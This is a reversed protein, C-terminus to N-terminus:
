RAKCAPTGSKIQYYRVEVPGEWFQDQQFSKKDVLKWCDPIEFAAREPTNYADTSFIWVGKIDLDLLGIPTILDADSVEQGARLSTRDIRDVLLRPPWDKRAYYDVGFFSHRELAVAADGETRHDLAYQVAGRMGENSQWGIDSWNDYYLCFSVVIVWEALLYHSFIWKSRFLAFSFASIWMLHVFTFYRTSVISRNALASFGIILLVPLLGTLVFYWGPWGGRAFLYIFLALLLSTTSWTLIASKTPESAWSGVIARHIEQSIQSATLDRQIAQTTRVTAAQSWLAAGWPLGYGVLLITAAMAIANAQSCRAGQKLDYEGGGGPSQRKRAARFPRRRNAYLYCIAFIVQGMVLLVALNSTYCFCVALVAWISWYLAGNRGTGSIGRVLAWSGWVFLASALSYGRVQQSSIIHMPSSATLFAALLGVRNSGPCAERSFRCIDRSFFFVGAITSVGFIAAMSRLSAEAEGFVGAWGKLLLFYLPPHVSAESSKRAILEAPTFKLAAASIAEDYWLSKAGIGICRIGAGLCLILLLVLWARQFLAM